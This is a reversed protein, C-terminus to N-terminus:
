CGTAFQFHQCDKRGDFYGGWLWGWRSFIAVVERGGSTSGLLTDSPEAGLPNRDPDFDIAIGFSHMSWDNGGRILRPNFCGGYREITRWLDRMAVEELAANLWNAVSRHCAVHTVRREAYLFPLPLHIRIISRAEYAPDFTGDIRVDRVRDFNVFTHVAPRGHPPTVVGPLSVGFQDPIM